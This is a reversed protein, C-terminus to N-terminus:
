LRQHTATAPRSRTTSKYGADIIGALKYKCDAGNGAPIV